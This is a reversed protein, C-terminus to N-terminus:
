MSKRETKSLFAYIASLAWCVALLLGIIMIGASIGVMGTLFFSTLLTGFISGATSMSYANGAASGIKRSDTALIKVIFPIVAGIFICPVIFLAISLLLAGLRSDFGLEYFFICFRSGYLPFLMVLATPFFIIRSLIRAEPNKDAMRGGIAYGISLGALFVSIIAGWVYLSSGYYPALMRAGLIEFGMLAAGTLFSILYLITKLM